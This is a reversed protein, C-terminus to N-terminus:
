RHRWGPRACSNLRLSRRSRREAGRATRLRHRSCLSCRIRRRIDARTSRRRDALCRVALGSITRPFARPENFPEGQQFDGLMSEFFQEFGIKAEPILRRSPEDLQEAVDDACIRRTPSYVVPNVCLSCPRFNSGKSLSTAFRPCGAFRRKGGCDSAGTGPLLARITPHGFDSRGEM